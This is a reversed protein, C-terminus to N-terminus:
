SAPAAQYCASPVRAMTAWTMTSICKNSNSMGTEVTGDAYFVVEASEEVMFYESVSNDNNSIIRVGEIPNPSLTNVQQAFATASSLSLVSVTLLLSVSFRM